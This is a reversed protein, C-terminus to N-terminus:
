DSPSSITSVPQGATFDPRWIRRAVAASVKTRTARVEPLHSILPGCLISSLKPFFFHSLLHSAARLPSRPHTESSAASSIPIRRDSTIWSAIVKRESTSTASASTFRLKTAKSCRAPADGKARKRRQRNLRKRWGTKFSGPSAGCGSDEYGHRATAVTPAPNRDLGTEDGILCPTMPIQRRHRDSPGILHPPM